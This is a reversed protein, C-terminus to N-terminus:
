RVPTYVALWTTVGAMLFMGILTYFPFNLSLPMEIFMFFQSSVLLSTLTGVITGLISATLVIMFAEYLYIRRGESETLGMSRLVGYEWIAENINQTMSILLLFFAIFLAIVAVIAVFIDLVVDLSNLAETVDIKSLVIDDRELNSRIGNMIFEQTERSIDKNLRVFVKEKPVDDTWEYASTAALYLNYAEDNTWVDSRLILMFDEESTLWQSNWFVLPFSSFNLQPMKTVFSRVIGRLGDNM